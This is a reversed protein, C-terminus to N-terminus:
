ATEPAQFVTIQYSEVDDQDEHNFSVVISLDPFDRSLKATWMERLTRGLYVVQDRSPREGANFMGMLMGAVHEHNMVAEVRQRMGDCKEMFGDFSERSFGARLLCGAHIVFEPWFIRSYGIAHDHRGIAGIWDDISIGSGDNWHPLEPILADFTTDRDGLMIPM